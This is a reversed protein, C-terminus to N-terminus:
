ERELERIGQLEIRSVETLEGKNFLVGLDAVPTAADHKYNVYDQFRINGITRINYAERFRVGTEETDYSYALYDLTSKEQHIWYMFIDEHHEGGGEEQFTVKIKNYPQNRIEETGLLESQVAKDKLFFPLFAFYHVSNVSNSYSDSKEASLQVLKGDIYREFNSNTLVDRVVNGREHVFLREYQFKGRNYDYLYTKDRFDFMFKAKNYAKGGHVDICKSIIQSAESHSAGDKCALLVLTVIIFALIYYKMAAFTYVEDCICDFKNVSMRHKDQVLM